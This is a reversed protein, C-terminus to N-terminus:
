IEFFLAPGRRRRSSAPLANPVMSSTDIYSRLRADYGAFAQQYGGQAAVLEGALVYAAIM